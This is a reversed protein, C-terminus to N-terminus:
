NGDLVGRNVIVLGDGKAHICESGDDMSEEPDILEASAFVKRREVKDIKIQLLLIQGVKVPKMLSTNIQVTFGTWPKCEGTVCFGIWGIADDMISCMSGGHCFGMHSEAKPTFHVIGTLKTGEGGTIRPYQVRYELIRV